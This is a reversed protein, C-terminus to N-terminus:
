KHIGGNLLAAGTERVTDVLLEVDVERTRWNAIAPRLAVKGTYTTTGVFVRGDEILAEGLNRNLLNLEAETHHGPNYRFCVVNLRVEALLELDPAQEVLGSLHEAVAVSREIMSRIGKRGYAKLNAWTCLSRARRSMEPGLVGPIPAEGDPDPLYEASHTFSKVMLSGDRVFAYGADYPVNLWKHGDVTVSDARDIGEVLHAKGPVVRAFLGFAGDVHLWAGYEGALDALRSIPDFAGANPEGAVAIIISPAGERRKLAEELATLDFRGTEGAALQRVSARGLGLMSLAKVDSAHLIGSSFVPIGPRGALGEKAIDFGLREGAWQRAAALCVVNGMTTGTTIIGQWDGPLGLLEQLWALSLLELKAALPSSVWAYAMQDLTTTLWDAGLAAPTTGGIVFHFSRPGATAVSADVGRNILLELASVAGDGSEPLPEDFLKLYEGTKRSRAPRDDLSAVYAAAERAVLRIVSRYEGTDPLGRDTKSYKGRNM